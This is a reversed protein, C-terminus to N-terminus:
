RPPPAGQSYLSLTCSPLLLQSYLSRTCAARVLQTLALQSYLSRTCASLALQSHLSHLFIRCPRPSFGRRPHRATSRRTGDQVFMNNLCYTQVCVRMSFPAWWHMNNAQVGREAAAYLSVRLYAGSDLNAVCGVARVSRAQSPGDGFIRRRSRSVGGWVWAGVGVGARARAAAAVRNILIAKYM